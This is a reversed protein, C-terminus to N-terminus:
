PYFPNFIDQLHPRIDQFDKGSHLCMYQYDPIKYRGIDWHSSQGSNYLHHTSKWPLYVYHWELSTIWYYFELFEEGFCHM